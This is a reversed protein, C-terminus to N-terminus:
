VPDNAAMIDSDASSQAVTRGAFRTALRERQSNERRVIQLLLQATHSASGGDRVIEFLNKGEIVKRKLLVGNV